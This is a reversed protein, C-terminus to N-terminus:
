PTRANQRRLATYDDLAKHLTDRALEVCDLKAEPFTGGLFQLIDEFEIERARSLALGKAMETVASGAAHLGACGTMLYRADVIANSEADIGLHLIMVDGCHGQVRAVASPNHLEGINTENMIFSIAKEPYGIDKLFQERQAPM